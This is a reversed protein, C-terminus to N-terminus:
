NSNALWTAFMLPQLNEDVLQLLGFNTAAIIASEKIQECCDPAFLFYDIHLYNKRLWKRVSEFDKNTEDLVDSSIWVRGDSIIDKQGERRFLSPTSYEIAIKRLDSLKDESIIGKSLFYQENFRLDENTITKLSKSDSNVLYIHFGLDILVKKFTEM